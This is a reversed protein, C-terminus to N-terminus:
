KGEDGAKTLELREWQPPPKPGSYQWVTSNGQADTETRQIFYVPEEHAPTCGALLLLASIFSTLRSVVLCKLRQM